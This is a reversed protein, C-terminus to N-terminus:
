FPLIVHYCTQSAPLSSEFTNRMRVKTNGIAPDKQTQVKATTTRNQSLM